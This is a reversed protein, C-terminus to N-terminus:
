ANRLATFSMINKAGISKDVRIKSEDNTLHVISYGALGLYEIFAAETFNWLHELPRYHKWLQIDKGPHSELWGDLCPLSVCIVQPSFRKLLGLPDRLHEFVDWFTMIATPSDGFFYEFMHPMFVRFGGSVCHAVCYPNVDVGVTRIGRCTLTKLFAGHSCGYDVVTPRPAVYKMAAMVMDARFDNLATETPTNAYSLHRLYYDRNYIHEM